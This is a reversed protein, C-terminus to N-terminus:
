FCPRGNCRDTSYLPVLLEPKLSMWVCEAVLLEMLLLGVADEAIMVMMIVMLYNWVMAVAIGNWVWLVSDWMVLVVIDIVVRVM